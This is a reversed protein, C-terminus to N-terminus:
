DRKTDTHTNTCWSFQHPVSIENVEIFDVYGLECKFDFGRKFRDITGISGTFKQRGHIFSADRFLVDHM